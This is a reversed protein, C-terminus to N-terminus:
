SELTVMLFGTFAANNTTISPDVLTKIHNIADRYAAYFAWSPQPKYVLDELELYAIIRKTTTPKVFVEEEPRMYLPLITILSWKALKGERLVDLIKNFGPEQKKNHLLIRFGDALYERDDRNLGNVFDRFKPKEFLSVMSSRTVLKVIDDLVAGQQRFRERALLTRTQETMRDIRHKKGVAVLDEHGFGGPYRDLFVTEATKLREYNMTM